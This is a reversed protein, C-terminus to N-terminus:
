QLSLEIEANITVNVKQKGADLVPAPAAAMPMAEAMAAMRYQPQPFDSATQIDLRVVRYEAREMTQKVQAARQKFGAMAESILQEEMAKRVETSISYDVAQVRLKEQLQGLLSSLIKSDKSKLEISQAVQWGDVKGDRYVPQTTYSLTRSEVATEKKAIEMAWVIAQNVSDALKATDQGTESASLIATLVDNEVEKEASIAFAVRDYPLVDAALAPLAVGSASGLLVCAAVIKKMKKM